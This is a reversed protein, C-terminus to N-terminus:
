KLIPDVLDRIIGSIDPLYEGEPIDAQEVKESVLAILARLEETSPVADEENVNVSVRGGFHEDKAGEDDDMGLALSLAQDDSHSFSGELRGRLYRELLAKAAASEDPSFNPDESAWHSSQRTLFVAMLPSEAMSEAFEGLEEFSVQDDKIGRRLRELEALVDRKEDTDLDADDLGEEMGEFAQDVIFDRVRDKLMYGAGALVVMLILMIGCGM